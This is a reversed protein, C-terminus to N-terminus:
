EHVSDAKGAKYRAINDLLVHLDSDNEFTWIEDTRQLEEFVDIDALVAVGDPWNSTARLAGIANRCVM